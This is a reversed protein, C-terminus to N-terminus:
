TAADYSGDMSGVWHINTTNDRHNLFQPTRSKQIVMGTLLKLHVDDNWTLRSDLASTKSFIQDWPLSGKSAAPRSSSRHTRGPKTDSRETLGKFLGFPNKNGHGDAAHDLIKYHELIINTCIRLKLTQFVPNIWFHFSEFSRGGTCYLWQRKWAFIIFSSKFFSSVWGFWLWIMMLDVGEFKMEGVGGFGFTLGFISWKLREMKKTSIYIKPHFFPVLTSFWVEWAIESRSAHRWPRSASRFSCCGPRLWWAWVPRSASSAGLDHRSSWSCTAPFHLLFCSSMIFHLFM